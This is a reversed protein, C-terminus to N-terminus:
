SLSVGVFWGITALVVLITAGLAVWVWAPWPEPEAVTGVESEEAPVVASVPAPPPTSVAALVDVVEAADVVGPGATRVILESLATPVATGDAGALLVGLAAGACRVDARMTARVDVGPFALFAMGDETVRIRAPHDLGVAAGAGHLDAVTRTLASLAVTADAPRAARTRDLPRSRQWQAVVIARGDVETVDLIPAVSESRVRSLRATRSFYGAMVDLSSGRLDVITLAVDRGLDCDHGRWFQAAGAAGCRELLRYRGGAFVTGAVPEWM